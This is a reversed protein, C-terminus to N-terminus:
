SSSFESSLPNLEIGSLASASINSELNDMAAKLGSPNNNNSSLSSSDLYKETELLLTATLYRNKGAINISNGLASDESQFYALIGFSSIIFLTEIIILISIKVIIKSKIKELM